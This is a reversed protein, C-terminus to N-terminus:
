NDKVCRVNMRDNGNLESRYLSADGLVFRIWVVPPNEPNMRTTSWWGAFYGIGIGPLATFGSENTAINPPDWHNTGSEKLKDGAIQAGGVFSSLREWEYDSPVHWGAPCLKGTNVALWNYRAGFAANYTDDDNSYWDYGPTIPYNWYGLHFIIHPIDTNDNFRTTRLNEAMWLQTGILITKYSNGEIDSVSGYTLTSNFQITKDFTLTTFDVEPGYTTIIAAGTFSKLYARMHYTTNPALESLRMFSADEQKISYLKVISDNSTPNALKSYCIGGDKISDNGGTWEIGSVASHYTIESVPRNSVSLREGEEKTCSLIGAALVTYTVASSAIKLFYKM